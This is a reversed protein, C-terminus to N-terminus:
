ETPEPPRRDGIRYLVSERDRWVPTMGAFLRPDLRPPDILWVHDFADRPLRGLSAQSSWRPEGRCPRGTILQSPDRVFPEGRRYRVQLLQAGPMTWQDNSFARRRVLAM